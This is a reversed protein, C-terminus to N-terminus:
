DHFALVPIDLHSMMKNTLSAHFLREFINMKHPSMILMDIEHENVYNSIVDSVSKDSITNFVITNTELKGRIDSIAVKFEEHRDTQKHTDVHVYHYESVSERFLNIHKEVLEVDTDSFESAYMLTNIAKFKSNKPISLVPIRANRMVHLIVSGFLKKRIQEDNNRAMVIFDYNNSEAEKIIEAEPFGDIIKKDINIHDFELKKASLHLADFLGELDKEAEIFPGQQIVETVDEPDKLKYNPVETNSFPDYFCHLLTMSAGTAHCVHLAYESANKSNTSFDIPVLIKKM